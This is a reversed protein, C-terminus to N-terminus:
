SGVRPKPTHFASNFLFFIGSAKQLYCLKSTEAM